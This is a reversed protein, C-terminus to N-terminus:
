KKAEIEREHPSPYINKKNHTIEMSVASGFGSMYINYWSFYNFFGHFRM